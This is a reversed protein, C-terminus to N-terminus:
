KPTVTVTGAKQVQLLPDICLAGPESVVFGSDGDHLFAIYLPKFVAFNSYRSEM